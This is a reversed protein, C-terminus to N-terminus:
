NRIIDLFENPYLKFHDLENVSRQAAGGSAGVEGYVKAEPLLMIKEHLAGSGYPEGM